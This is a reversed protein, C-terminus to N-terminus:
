NPQEAHKLLSTHITRSLRENSKTGSAQITKSFFKIVSGQPFVIVYWDSSIVM